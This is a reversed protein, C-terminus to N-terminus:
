FGDAKIRARESQDRLFVTVFTGRDQNSLKLDIGFVPHFVQQFKRLARRTAESQSFVIFMVSSRAGLNPNRNGSDNSNVKVQRNDPNWNANLVRSATGSRAGVEVM